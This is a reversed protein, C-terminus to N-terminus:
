PQYSTQPCNLLKTTSYSVNEYGRQPVIVGIDELSNAELEALISVLLSKCPKLAKTHTTFTRPVM